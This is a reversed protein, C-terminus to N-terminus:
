GSVCGTVVEGRGLKEEHAGVLGATETVHHLLRNTVNTPCTKDKPPNPASASSLEQEMSDTRKEM